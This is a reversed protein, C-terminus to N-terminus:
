MMHMRVNVSEKIFTIFKNHNNNNNSFNYLIHAYHITLYVAHVGKNTKQEESQSIKTIQYTFICTKIYTNNYHM